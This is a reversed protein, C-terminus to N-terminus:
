TIIGKVEDNELILSHASFGPFIEVGLNEAHEALWRCVNGMSVIFNGHNKFTKPVAINPISISKEQTQFLYIDDQTVETTVPAGLEKW